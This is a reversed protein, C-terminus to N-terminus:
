LILNKKLKLLSIWDSFYLEIRKLDQSSLPNHHAIVNRPHELEELKQSIWTQSPFIHSFDNWNSQIITKLDRFNSYFIEHQGRKGHWPQEAEKNIRDTVNDKVKKNVKLQWWNNGYKKELIRWIVVRISNEMLYYKPYVAAMKQADRVLTTSLLADINPLNTDIKVLTLKQTNGSSKKTNSSLSNHPENPIMNRIRDVATPELHKTLDIGKQHAIVYTADETSMPGYDKKM